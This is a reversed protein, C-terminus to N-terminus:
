GSLYLLLSRIYMNKQKIIIAISKQIDFDVCDVDKQEISSNHLDLNKLFALPYSM